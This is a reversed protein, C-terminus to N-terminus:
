SGRTRIAAMGTALLSQRWELLPWAPVARNFTDPGDGAVGGKGLTMLVKGDTNFKSSRQGKGDKGQSDTAWVNGDRDVLITPFVFM